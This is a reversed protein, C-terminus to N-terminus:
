HSEPYGYKYQLGNSVTPQYGTLNKSVPNNGQRSKGFQLNKM